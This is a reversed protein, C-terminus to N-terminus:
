CFLIPRVTVPPEKKSAGTAAPGQQAVLHFIATSPDRLCADVASVITAQAECLSAVVATVPSSSADSPTSTNTDNEWWTDSHADSNSDCNGHCNSYGNGHADGNSNANPDSDRWRRL